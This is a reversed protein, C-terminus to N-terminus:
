STSRTTIFALTPEARCTTVAAAFADREATHTPEIPLSRSSANAEMQRWEAEGRLWASLLSGPASRSRHRLVAGACIGEFRYATSPLAEALFVEPPGRARAPQSVPGVRHRCVVDKYGQCISKRALAGTTPIHERMVDRDSRSLFSILTLDDAAVLEAFCCTYWQCLKCVGSYGPLPETREVLIARALTLAEQYKRWLGSAETFDYAVERGRIDLIFAKRGASLRLRELIDVYLALQVAYSRKPKGEHGDEGGERCRIFGSSMSAYLGFDPSVTVSTVSALPRMSRLELSNGSHLASM